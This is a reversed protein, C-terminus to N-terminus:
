DPEGLLGALDSPAGQGTGEPVRRLRDLIDLMRLQIGSVVDLREHRPLQDIIRANARALAGLTMKWPPEGILSDLEASFARELDGPPADQDILDARPEDEPPMM